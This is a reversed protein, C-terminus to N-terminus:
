LGAEMRGLARALKDRQGQSLVAVARTWAITRESEYQRSLQSYGVLRGQFGSPARQSETAKALFASESDMTRLLDAKVSVWHRAIAAVHKSQAATLGIDGSVLILGPEPKWLPAPAQGNGTPGPVLRLKGAKDAEYYVSKAPGPQSVYGLAGFVGLGIFM